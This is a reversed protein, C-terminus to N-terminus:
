ATKVTFHALIEPDLDVGLGPGTPVDVYGDKLPHRQITLAENIPTGAVCYEQLREGPLIANMHLSAAKVIGSKWAHPMCVVGKEEALKAIRLGDTLGGCRTMDPQVVDLHGGDILERFGWATADHEGAAIRLDVTDALEAYAELEDPEFPEELWFVGLQELERAVWIARKADAVYGLGADILLDVGDGVTQRAAKVLRVDHREDKGLPGWGLKIATFGLEALGAVKARVEDETDPMLTSAYARIRTHRPTGLLESVPKGAAKGKIDWLALDVGSMAHIAAGRRGYYVSGRYMKAWLGENDLPDAGLLMHRLGIANAHSNPADIAAKVVEPASDVEGIGVIGEDTHIRVILDDQSGDAIADDVDPQRLIITEVETIKV